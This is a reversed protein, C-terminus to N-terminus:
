AVVNQRRHSLPAFFLGGIDGGTYVNIKTAAYAVFGYHSRIEKYKFAAGLLFLLVVFSLLVTLMKKNKFM